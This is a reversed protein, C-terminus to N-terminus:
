IAKDEILIEKNEKAIEDILLDSKLNMEINRLTQTM